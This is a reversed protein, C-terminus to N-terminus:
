ANYQKNDVPRYEIGFYNPLLVDLDYFNPVEVTIDENSPKTVNVKPILNTFPIPNTNNFLNGDAYGWKTELCKTLSEGSVESMM